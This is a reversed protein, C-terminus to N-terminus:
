AGYLVAFRRPPHSRIYRCMGERPRQRNIESAVTRAYIELQSSGYDAAAFVATGSYGQVACFSLAAAMIMILSLIKKKM